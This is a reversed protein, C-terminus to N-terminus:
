KIINQIVYPEMLINLEEVNDLIGQDILNIFDTIDEKISPDHKIIM